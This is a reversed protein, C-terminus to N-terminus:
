MKGCQSKAEATRKKEEAVADQAMKLMKEQMAINDAHAAALQERFPKEPHDPLLMSMLLGLIAVMRILNNACDNM